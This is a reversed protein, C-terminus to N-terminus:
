HLHKDLFGGLLGAVLDILPPPTSVQYGLKERARFGWFFERRAQAGSQAGGIFEEARKGCNQVSSQFVKQSIESHLDFPLAVAFRAPAASDKQFHM